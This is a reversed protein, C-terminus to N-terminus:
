GKMPPPPGNRGREARGPSEFGPTHWRRLRGLRFWGQWAAGRGVTGLRVAGPCLMGSREARRRARVTAQGPQGCRIWAHRAMAQRAMGVGRGAEGSRAGARRLLGFGPRVPGRWALVLGM